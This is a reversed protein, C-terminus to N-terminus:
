LRVVEYAVRGEAVAERVARENPSLSGSGSKVEVLVLERLEGAALGDFVVYDVPAGVFRADGPDWREAFGVLHPALQEAGRGGIASRSRRAADRRAALLDEEGYPHRARYVALRLALWAAALLAAAALAIALPETVAGICAPAAAATPAQL